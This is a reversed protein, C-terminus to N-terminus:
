VPFPGRVLAGVSELLEIARALDETTASRPAGHRATELTYPQTRELLARVVAAMEADVEVTYDHDSRVRLRAAGGAEPDLSWRADPNPCLTSRASLAPSRGLCLLLDETRLDAAARALGARLADLQSATIARPAVPERWAPDTVLALELARLFVEHWRPTSIFVGLAFSREDHGRSAHWYGPPLYLV